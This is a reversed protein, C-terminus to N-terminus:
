QALIAPREGTMANLFAVLSAIEEKSLERGLQYHGMIAVAEELTAASGDHFYPATLAVNRLSPVKFVNRDEERGTVNYRGLDASTPPPRRNPRGLYDAMIGFHQFMNGGVNVGQHCSICGLDRFREYGDRARADLAQRDGRLFRDLPSNETLLVREFSAIADVINAATIGDPYVARFEMLMRPDAKLKAIVEDWNSAMEAPNHVPGAAQEELTTARGDWFQAFNMCANFVTPANVKGIAGGVGVSVRRRDHGGSGLDHCGSCALSNDHSLRGDMFLAKGLAVKRPPLDPVPPLPLLAEGSYEITEPQADHNRGDEARPVWLWLAAVGAGLVAIVPLFPRLRQMTTM